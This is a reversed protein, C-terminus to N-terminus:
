LYECRLKSAMQRVQEHNDHCESHIKSFEEDFNM